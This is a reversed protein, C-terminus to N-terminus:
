SSSMAAPNLNGDESVYHPPVEGKIVKDALEFNM